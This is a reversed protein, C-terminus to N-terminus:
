PQLLGRKWGDRDRRYEVREHFRDQRETWFELNGKTYMIGLVGLCFGAVLILYSNGKIFRYLLSATKTWYKGM